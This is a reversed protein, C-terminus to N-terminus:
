AKCEVDLELEKLSFALSPKLLGTDKQLMLYRYLATIQMALIVFGVHKQIHEKGIVPLPQNPTRKLLAYCTKLIGFTGEITGRRRYVTFWEHIGIKLFFNAILRDYPAESQLLKECLAQSEQLRVKYDKDQLLADPSVDCKLQKLERFRKRLNELSHIFAQIAKGRHTKPWPFPTIHLDQEIWTLIETSAFGADLALGLVSRGEEEAIKKLRQLGEKYQEFGQTDHLEGQTRHILLPIGVGDCVAHIKHTKKRTSRETTGPSFGPDHEKGRLASSDVTLILPEATNRRILFRAHTEITQFLIEEKLQYFFEYLTSKGPITDIFGLHQGLKRYHQNTVDLEEHLANRIQLCGDLKLLRSWVFTKYLLMPSYYDNGDFISEPFYQHWPVLELIKDAGPILDSGLELQKARYYDPLRQQQIAVYDQELQLIFQSFATKHPELIKKIRNLHTCSIELKASLHRFARSLTPNEPAAIVKGVNKASIQFFVHFTLAVVLFDESYHGDIGNRAIKLLQGFQDLQAEHRSLAEFFATIKYNPFYFAEFVKKQQQQSVIKKLIGTKRMVM